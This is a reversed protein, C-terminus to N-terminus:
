NPTSLRRQLRELREICQEVEGQTRAEKLQQKIKEIEAAVREMEESQDERSSGGALFESIRQFIGGKESRRSRPVEPSLQAQKPQALGPLSFKRGREVTQAVQDRSDVQREVKETRISRDEIKNCDGCAANVFFRDAKRSEPGVIGSCPKSVRGLASWLHEGESLPFLRQLTSDTNVSFEEKLKRDPCDLQKEFATPTPARSEYERENWRKIVLSYLQDFAPIIMEPLQSVSDRTAYGLFVMFSRGHEDRQHQPEKTALTSELLVGALTLTDTRCVVFIAQASRESSSRSAAECIHRIWVAEKESLGEPAALLNARYDVQFTRSHVVGAWKPNSM